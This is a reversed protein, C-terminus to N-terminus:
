VGGFINEDLVIGWPASVALFKGWDPYLKSFMESTNFVKNDSLM